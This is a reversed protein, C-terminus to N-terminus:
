KWVLSVPTGLTVPGDKRPRLDGPVPRLCTPPSVPGPLRSRPEVNGRVLLASLVMPAIRLSSSVDFSTDRSSDHTGRAQRPLPPVLDSGVPDTYSPNQSRGLNRSRPGTIRHSYTLQVKNCDLQKTPLPTTRSTSHKSIVSGYSRPSMRRVSDPPGTKDAYSDPVTRPPSTLPPSTPTM